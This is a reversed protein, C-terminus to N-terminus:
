PSSAWVPFLCGPSRELHLATGAFALATRVDGADAPRGRHVRRTVEAVDLGASLGDIVGGLIEIQDYPDALGTALLAQVAGLSMLQHALSNRASLARLAESLTTPLPVDLILLPLSGGRMLQYVLESLASVSLEAAGEVGPHVTRKGADGGFDLVSAGGGFRVPAAVHVVDPVFARPRSVWARVIDITPDDIVELQASHRLYSGM